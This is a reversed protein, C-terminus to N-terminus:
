IIGDIYWLIKVAKPECICQRSDHIDRSVSSSSARYGIEFNRELYDIM